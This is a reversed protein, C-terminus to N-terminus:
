VCDSALAGNSCKLELTGIMHNGIRQTAANQCLCPGDTKARVERILGIRTDFDGLICRHNEIFHQGM